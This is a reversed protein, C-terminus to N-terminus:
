TAPESIMDIINGLDPVYEAALQTEDYRALDSPQAAITLPLWIGNIDSDTANGGENWPSSAIQPRVEKAAIVKSEPTKVILYDIGHVVGKRNVVDLAKAAGQKSISYLFTGGIYLERDLDHLTCGSSNKYLDRTRSRDHSFMSYGLMVMEETALTPSLSQLRHFFDVGFECDDEMIIYYDTTEDRLLREWLEIHTLACGITGANNGFDNGLFIQLRPDESRLAMGDVAQIVEYSVRSSLKARMTDLRDQRRELNVLKVPLNITANGNTGQSV